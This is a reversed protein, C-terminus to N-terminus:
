LKKHSNLINLFLLIYIIYAIFYVYYIPIMKPFVLLDYLYTFFYVPINYKSYGTEGNCKYMWYLEDGYSILFGIFFGFLITKVIQWLQKKTKNLSYMFIFLGVILIANITAIEYVIIGANFYQAECGAIIRLFVNRGDTPSLETQWYWSYSYTIFLFLMISLTVLILIKQKM